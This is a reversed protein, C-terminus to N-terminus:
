PKISLYIKTNDIMITLYYTSDFGTFIFEVTTEKGSILEIEKSDYSGFNDSSRFSFISANVTKSENAPISLKIKNNKANTTNEIRLSEIAVNEVASDTKYVQKLTLEGNEYTGSWYDYPYYDWAQHLLEALTDTMQLVKGEGLHTEVKCIETFGPTLRFMGISGCEIWLTGQSIPLNTSFENIADDSIKPIIDGTEQLKSLCDIIAYGLDCSAIEKRGIGVGSWDYQLLTFGEEDVSKTISASDTYMRTVNCLSCQEVATYENSNEIRQWTHNCQPTSVTGACGTLLSICLIIAIMSLLIKKM